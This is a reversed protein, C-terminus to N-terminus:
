RMTCDSNVQLPVFYSSYFDVNVQSYHSSRKENKMGQLNLCYNSGNQCIQIMGNKKGAIYLQVYLM